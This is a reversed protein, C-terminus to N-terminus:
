APKKSLKQDESKEKPSQKKMREVHELCSAALAMVASARISQDRLSLASALVGEFDFPAVERFTKEVNFGEMSLTIYTFYNRGEIRHTLANSSFDPKEIQNITHVADRLLELSRLSDFKSYLHVVGLLARAKENTNPAKSAARAVESLIEAARQRDDFQKLSQAAIEYSLYARQGLSEVKEAMQRAEDFENKKIARQAMKFHLYNLAQNLVSTDGIKQAIDFLRASPESEPAGVLANTFHQDRKDPDKEAEAKELTIEFLNGAREQQRQLVGMAQQRADTTIHGGLLSMLKAAREALTPQHEAIKSELYSLSVFAEAAEPMTQPSPQVPPSKLIQDARRFLTELFLQQLVPRPAFSSPMTFAAMAGRPSSLRAMAFPYAALFHLEEFLFANSYAAVAERYLQDASQQNSESLKFLFRLIAVSHAHGMATRALALAAKEDKEEATLMTLALRAIKEGTQWVNQDKPGSQPVSAELRKKEAERRTEEAAREALQRAWAPDRRGIAQLVIFRPDELRRQIRGETIIEDGSERFRNEAAEYARTFYNRATEEQHRWLLDAARILIAIRKRVDELSRAEEVQQHVLSLARESDCIHRASEQGPAFAPRQSQVLALALMVSLAIRCILM